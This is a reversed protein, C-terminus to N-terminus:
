RYKKTKIINEHMEAKAAGGSLQMAQWVL